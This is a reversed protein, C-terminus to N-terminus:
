RVADRRRELRANLNAFEEEDHILHAMDMTAAIMLADDLVNGCQRCVLREISGDVEDVDCKILCKACSFVVESTTM